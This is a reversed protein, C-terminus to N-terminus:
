QLTGDNEHMTWPVIDIEASLYSDQDVPTDPDTPGVGPATPAGLAKIDTINLRYYNNRVIRYKVSLDDTDEDDAVNRINLRYYCLGKDYKVAKYESGLKASNIYGKADAETAFYIINYADDTAFVWTASASINRAVVYFTGDSPLNKNNYLKGKPTAKIRILAFTTNGSTPTQAVNEGMYRNDDYAASYDAPAACFFGADFATPIATYGSYTANNATKTGLPTFQGDKRTLYMQKACQAPAFGCASFTANITPRVTVNAADFKVQLKAAARDVSIKVPNALAQAETCKVVTANARGIMVFENEEAITEALADFLQKEFDALKTVEPTVSLNLKESTVAYVVKEGTSVAVPVTVESNIEPTAAVELVGGSFIYINCTTINQEVADANDDSESRSAAPKAMKISFAAYSPDGKQLQNQDANVPEDSSCSTLGLIGVLAAGLLAKIKM